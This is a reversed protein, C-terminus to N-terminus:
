LRGRVLSLLQSVTVFRYGERRLTDIVMRTADVTAQSGNTGDHFIIISGPGVQKQVIGLMQAATYRHRWDRPDVSWGIVTYGLSGLVSLAQRDYIGAPLRYLRPPPAGAAEIAQAADEVERRIAEPSRNKLIVHMAGHNGIEMGDRVEDAILQPYRIAQQGIVFFTARVQLDKLIALIKPTWRPTPGDDFTLAVAKESIPVSTVVPAPRVASATVASGTHYAVIAIGLVLVAGWWTRGNM